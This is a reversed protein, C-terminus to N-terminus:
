ESKRKIQSDLYRTIYGAIRNRLVNSTVDSLHQVQEKNHQFDETKFQDPYIDLLKM